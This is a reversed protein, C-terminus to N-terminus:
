SHSPTLDVFRHLDIQQPRESSGLKACSRQDRLVVNNPGITKPLSKLQDCFPPDWLHGSSASTVIIEGGILDILCAYQTFGNELLTQAAISAHAELESRSRPAIFPRVDSRDTIGSLNESADRSFGVFLEDGEIQTGIYDSHETAKWIISTWAAQRENARLQDADPPRKMLSSHTCATIALLVAFLLPSPKM